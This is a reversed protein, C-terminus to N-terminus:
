LNRANASQTSFRMTTIRLRSIYCEYAPRKGRHLVGLTTQQLALAWRNEYLWKESIAILTPRLCHMPWRLIFSSSVLCYLTESIGGLM